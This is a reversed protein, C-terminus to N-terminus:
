DFNHLAREFKLNNCEKSLEIANGLLEDSEPIRFQKYRVYSINFIAFYDNKDILLTDLM